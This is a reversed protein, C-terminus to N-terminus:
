NRKEIFVYLFIQLASRTYYSLGKISMAKKLTKWILRPRFFHERFMRGQLKVLERPSFHETRWCPVSHLHTYKEWQESFVLGKEKMIKELETGPFPVAIAAAMLEPDIEKMLKISMEYDKETESPHGGIIFFATTILGAERAWKFANKIQDVSIGKKTEALIRPSGSEVGIAVKNCGADAMMLLMDKTVANARTDCDWSIKREKLGRCLEELRSPRYTFTDDDITFHNYGWKEMCQDVEALVNGPSRFRITKGSIVKSACFICQEPCGRTTFLQTSRHLAADLGPSAAGKYLSHDILDRAPFQLSDLERILPRTAEVVIKDNDRWALGPTGAVAEGRELRDALERWTAEGEGMVVADISPFERLTREPIASGHPGGVVLYAKPAAEKIWGMLTAVRKINATLGSVGVLGPDSKKARTKIELESLPEVELDWVEPEHGAGRIAAALYLLNIPHQVMSRELAGMIKSPRIHLVRM